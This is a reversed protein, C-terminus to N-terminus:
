RVGHSCRPKDYVWLMKIRWCKCLAKLFPTYLFLRPLFPLSDKVSTRFVREDWLKRDASICLQHCADAYLDVAKCRDPEEMVRDFLLPKFVKWDLGKANVADVLRKGDVAYKWFARAKKFMAPMIHIHFDNMDSECILGRKILEMCVYSTVQSAGAMGTGVGGLANTAMGAQGLATTLGSPQAEEFMKQGLASQLGFDYLNSQNQGYDALGPYMRNLAMEYPANATQMQGSIAPLSVEGLAGSIDNSAAQGLTGGLGAQFAGSSPTIGLNNMNGAFAQYTPSNPNTLDSATAGVQKSILNQIQQQAGQLQNQQQGQQNQQIQPGYTNQIYPNMLNQLDAYGTGSFGGPSSGVEGGINQFMANMEQDTPDRGVMNRFLGQFQSAMGGLKSSTNQTNWTGGGPMSNGMIQQMLQQYAPDDTYAM